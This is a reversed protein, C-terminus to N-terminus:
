EVTDHHMSAIHLAIQILTCPLRSQYLTATTNETPHLFCINADDLRCEPM